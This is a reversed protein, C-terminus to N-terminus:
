NEMKKKIDKWTVDKPFDILEPEEPFMSEVQRKTPIYGFDRMLHIGAAQAGEVGWTERVYVLAEKHHRFRRHNINLKGDIWALGDIWAHVENWDSGLIELCDACHVERKAM